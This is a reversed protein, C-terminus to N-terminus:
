EKHSNTLTPAFYRRLVDQKIEWAFIITPFGERACKKPSDYKDLNGKEYGTEQLYSNLSRNSTRRKCVHTHAYAHMIPMRSTIPHSAIQSCRVDVHHGATKYNHTGETNDIRRIFRMQFIRKKKNETWGVVSRLSPPLPFFM